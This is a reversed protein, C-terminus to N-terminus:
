DLSPDNSQDCISTAHLNILTLRPPAPALVLLPRQHGLRKNFALRNVTDRAPTVHQATSLRKVGRQSRRVQIPCAALEVRAVQAQTV